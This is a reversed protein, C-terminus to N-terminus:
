KGYIFDSINLIIFIFLCFIMMKDGSNSLGNFTNVDIFIVGYALLINWQKRKILTLVPFIMLFIYILITMLMGYELSFMRIPYEFAASAWSVYENLEFTFGRGYGYFFRIPYINMNSVEIWKESRGTTLSGNSFREMVTNFIGLKMALITGLVIIIFKKYKKKNEFLFIVSIILLVFGTKSGTLAIGISSFLLIVISCDKKYIYKYKINNLILYILYLETNFLPHGMFSYMRREYPLYANAVIQERTRSSMFESIYVNIKLGFIFELIGIFTIIIIIINLVKMFLIFFQIFAGKDLKLITLLLPAIFLLVVSIVNSLSNSYYLSIGLYVLIVTFLLGAKKIDIEHIKRFFLLLISLLGLINYTYLTNGLFSRLEQSFILLSCIMIILLLKDKYIFKNIRM